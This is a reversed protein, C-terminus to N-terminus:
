LRGTELDFLLSVYIVKSETKFTAEIEKKYALIEKSAEQDFRDQEQELDQEYKRNALILENAANLSLDVLKEFCVLKANIENFIESEDEIEMNTLEELKAKNEAQFQKLSASFDVKQKKKSKLQKLLTELEEDSTNVLTKEFDVKSKRKVM